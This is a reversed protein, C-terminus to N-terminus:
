DYSLAHDSRHVYHSAVIILWPQAAPLCFAM